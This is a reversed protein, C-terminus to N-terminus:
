ILKYAKPLYFEVSLPSMAMVFPVSNVFLEGKYTTILDGFSWQEIFEFLETKNDIEFAKPIYM